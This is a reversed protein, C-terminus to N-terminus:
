SEEIERMFVVCDNGDKCFKWGEQGLANWQEELTKMKKEFDFGIPSPFRVFKYEYKKM